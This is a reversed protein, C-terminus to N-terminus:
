SRIVISVVHYFAV